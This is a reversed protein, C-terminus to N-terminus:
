HVATRTPAEVRVVSAEFQRDRAHLRAAVTSPRRAPTYIKLSFYDITARLGRELAVQPKWGLLKLAKDIVPQRRKPDDQPLPRCVLTSRSGTQELIM